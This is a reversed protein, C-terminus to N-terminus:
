SDSYQVDYVDPWVVNYIKREDKMEERHLIYSDAIQSKIRCVSEDLVEKEGFDSKKSILERCKFGAESTQMTSLFFFHRRHMFIM